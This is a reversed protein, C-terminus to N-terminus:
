IDEPNSVRGSPGPRINPNPRQVDPSNEQPVLPQKMEDIARQAEEKQKPSAKRVQEKINKDAKIRNKMLEIRKKVVDKPNDTFGNENTKKQVEQTKLAEPQKQEAKSCGALFPLSLAGVALASHLWKKAGLFWRRDDPNKQILEEESRIEEHQIKLAAMNDMFSKPEEITEIEPSQPEKNHYFNGKEIPM